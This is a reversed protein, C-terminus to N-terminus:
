ENICSVRIWGTPLFTGGEFILNRSKPEAKQKNRINFSVSNRGGYRGLRMIFTDKKSNEELFEDYLDSVTSDGTRKGFADFYVNKEHLLLRNYFKRCSIIVDHISFQKGIKWKVTKFYRTDLSINLNIVADQSIFEAFLKIDKEKGSKSESTVDDLCINHIKRITSIDNGQIFTDSIKLCKLPDKGINNIFQGPNKRSEERYKLCEAELNQATRASAKPPEDIGEEPFLESILATRFAGKVSSGPIPLKGNSRIFPTLQLQSEEHDTEM